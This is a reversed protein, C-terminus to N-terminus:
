QPYFPCSKADISFAKDTSIHKEIQGSSGLYDFKGVPCDESVELNDNLMGWQNNRVEKSYRSIFRHIPSREFSDSKKQIFRFEKSHDYKKRDSKM